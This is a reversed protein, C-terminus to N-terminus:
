FFAVGAGVLLGFDRTIPSALRVCVAASSVGHVADDIDLQLQELETRPVEEVAAPGKADGM